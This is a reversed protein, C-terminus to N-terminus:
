GEVPGVLEVREVGLQELLEVRVEGRDFGLGIADAADHQAPRPPSKAGPRVEARHRRREAQELGLHDLTQLVQRLRRHRRDVADAEGAREFQREGAIEDQGLCPARKASVWPLHPRTPEQPM